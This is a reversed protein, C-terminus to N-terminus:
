APVSSEVWRREATAAALVLHTVLQPYQLALKLAIFAGMSRAVVAASVTM